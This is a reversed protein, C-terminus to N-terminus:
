PQRLQIRDMSQKYYVPYGTDGDLVPEGDVTQRMQWIVPTIGSVHKQLQGRDADLIWEEHFYVSLLQKKPQYIPPFPKRGSILAIFAEQLERLVEGNPDLFSFEYSIDRIRLKGEAPFVTRSSDACSVRFSDVRKSISSEPIRLNWEEHFEITCELNGDPDLKAPLDMVEHIRHVSGQGLLQGAPWALLSLLLLLLTNPTKGMTVRKRTISRM